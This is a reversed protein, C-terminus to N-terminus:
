FNTRSRKRRNMPPLPLSAKGLRGLIGKKKALFFTDPEQAAAHFPVMMVFALLIYLLRNFMNM